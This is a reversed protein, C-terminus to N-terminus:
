DDINYWTRGGKRRQAM